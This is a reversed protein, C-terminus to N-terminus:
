KRAKRKTVTRKAPVRSKVTTEWDKTKWWNNANSMEKTLLLQQMMAVSQMLTDFQQDKKKLAEEERIREDEILQAETKERLIRAEEEERIKKQRVEEVEKYQREFSWPQAIQLYEEIVPFTDVKVKRYNIICETIDTLWVTNLISDQSIYYRIQGDELQQSSKIIGYYEQLLDMETVTTMAKIWDPMVRGIAPNDRYEWADLWQIDKSYTKM